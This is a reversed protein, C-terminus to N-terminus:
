FKNYILYCIVAVVGWYVVPPINYMFSIGFFAISNFYYYAIILFIAIIAFPTLDPKRSRRRHHAM